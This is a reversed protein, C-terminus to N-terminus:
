AREVTGNQSVVLDAFSTGPGSGGGFGGSGSGSTGREQRGNNYNAHHANHALAGSGNSNPQVARGAQPPPQLRRVARDPVEHAPKAWSVRLGSAQDAFPGVEGDAALAAKARAEEEFVVHAFGRVGGELSNRSNKAM